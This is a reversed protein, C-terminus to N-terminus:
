LEPFHLCSCPRGRPEHDDWPGYHPTWQSFPESSDYSQVPFIPPNHRDQLSLFLLCKSCYCQLKPFEQSSLNLAPAWSQDQRLSSEPVQLLWLGLPHPKLALGRYSCCTTIDASESCWWCYASTPSGVLHWVSHLGVPLPPWWDAIRAKMHSATWQVGM